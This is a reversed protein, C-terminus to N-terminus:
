RRPATGALYGEALRVSDSKAARTYRCAMYQYMETLSLYTGGALGLPISVGPDAVTFRARTRQFYARVIDPTLHEAALYAGSQGLSFAARKAAVEEPPRPPMEHKGHLPRDFAPPAGLVGDCPGTWQAARAVPAHVHGLTVKSVLFRLGGGTYVVSHGLGGYRRVHAAISANDANFLRM